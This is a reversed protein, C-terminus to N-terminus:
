KAAAELMAKIDGAPDDRDVLFVRFSSNDVLMLIVCREINAGEVSEIAMELCAGIAEDGWSKAMALDQQLDELTLYESSHEDGAIRIALLGPGSAAHGKDFLRIFDGLIATCTATALRTYGEQDAKLNGQKHEPFFLEAFQDRKPRGQIPASSTM